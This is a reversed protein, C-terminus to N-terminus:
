QSVRLRNIQNAIQQFATVLDANTPALTYNGGGACYSLLTGNVSTPNNPDPISTSGFGITFIEIGAQNMLYCVNQTVADEQASILAPPYNSNAGYYTSLNPVYQGATLYDGPGTVYSMGVMGYASYAPLSDTLQNFGDTMLIVIKNTTPAATTGAPPSGSGTGWLGDWKPSIVRWAWAMGQDLVTDGGSAKLSTMAALIVSPDNTLPTIPSLCLSNPGLEPHAALDAATAGWWPNYADLTDFKAPNGGSVKMYYDFWSSYQHPLKTLPWSNYVPPMTPPNYYIPFLTSPNTSTPPTDNFSLANNMSPLNWSRALVCGAWNAGPPNWAPYYGPPPYGAYTAPKLSTPDLWNAHSTGVNVAASFPVISMYVDTGKEGGPYVIDLLASVATQLAQIKPTSSSGSVPKLMSASNDLALVVETIVSNSRTVVSNAGLAVKQIGVVSLFTTAQSASDKLTVTNGDASVTAVPPSIVSEDYGAPLNANFVKTAEAQVAKQNNAQGVGVSSIKLGALGAADLASWVRSQMAQARAMDVACGICTILLTMALAVMMLVNGGEDRLAPQFFRTLSNFKMHYRVPM